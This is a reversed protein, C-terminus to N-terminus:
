RKVTPRRRAQVHTASLQVRGASLAGTIDDVAHKIPDTSVPIEIIVNFVDPLDRGSDVRDPHM